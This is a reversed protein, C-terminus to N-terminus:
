CPMNVHSAARRVIDAHTAALLLLGAAVGVLAAQLDDARAALRRQQHVRGGADHQALVPLLSRLLREGVGQGLFLRINGEVHLVLNGVSNMGDQPRAWVTEDDLRALAREFRDLYLELEEIVIRRADEM